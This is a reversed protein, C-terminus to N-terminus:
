DFFYIYKMMKVTAITLPWFLNNIGNHSKKDESLDKAISLIRKILNPGYTYGYKEVVIQIANTPFLRLFEILTCM